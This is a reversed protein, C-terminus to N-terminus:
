WSLVGESLFKENAAPESWSLLSLLLKLRNFVPGISLIYILINIVWIINKLCQKINTCICIMMFINISMVVFISLIGPFLCLQQSYPCSKPVEKKNKISCQLVNPVNRKKPFNIKELICLSNAIVIGLQIDSVNLLQQM